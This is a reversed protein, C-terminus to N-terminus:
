EVFLLLSKLYAGEPHFLSIPHDAAQIHKSLIRVSRSTKVAAAFIAQQFQREEIFYSCSSTLLFGNQHIARFAKENLKQYARLANDVHKRKKAMAPPDLILFDVSPFPHEFADGCIVSQNSYGSLNKEALACARKCQDLSTVSKAGGAAAYLSFGGTYSFCNFVNKGKSLSGVKKRMDRQDLFFGTKQGEPISVWILHGNEKIQILPPVQGYLLGEFPPLGEEGRASSLSKEYIGKPQIQEILLAILEEKLREVGQTHVQVVLYGDYFDVILGSIGDGEANILRYANTQSKDFLTERLSIAKELKKKLISRINGKEYTLIRGVLSNGPNFYGQALFNGQSDCISLIEGPQCNPIQALAGSFIWPHGRLISKERGPKLLVKGM